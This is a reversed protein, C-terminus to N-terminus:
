SLAAAGTAREAPAVEFAHGTLEESLTWLRAAIEPDNARKSTRARAPVGVLGLPGDPGIYEGAEVEATAAYLTPLAGWAASQAFAHNGLNMLTEELSSGRIKATKVQLSTSAYGPHCAVCKVGVGASAARRALEKAFLMNALKSQAYAAWRSYGKQWNPDHFRITGFFHAVSGVVVVRAPQAALLSPWLLAALAFHGLHNTGMQMEFGDATKAYPLAMVGANNVLLDLKAHESRFTEAFRRVSGLDALDLARLTVEAGPVAGEIRAIAARGTEMSRCALVVHARKAALAHAAELGIGSNAGTVVVTKGSLDPMHAPTWIM